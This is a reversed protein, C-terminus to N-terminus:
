QSASSYRALDLPKLQKFTLAAFACHRAQGREGGDVDVM